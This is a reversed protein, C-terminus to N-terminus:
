RKALDPDAAALSVAVIHRSLQDAKGFDVYFGPVIEDALHSHLGFTELLSIMTFVAFQVHRSDQGLGTAAAILEAVFLLDPRYYRDIVNQHAEGGRHSERALLAHRWNEPGDKRYDALAEKVLYFLAERPKLRQLARKDDESISAHAAAAALVEFFLMQKTQFHYNLASLHTEAEKAILRVSVGDFGREAFLRGAAEIIRARTQESDKATGM